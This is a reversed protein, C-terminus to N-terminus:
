RPRAREQRRSSRDHHDRDARRGRLAVSMASGGLVSAARVGPRCRARAAEAVADTVGSFTLRLDRVLGAGLRFAPPDVAPAADLGVLRANGLALSKDEGTPNTVRLRVPLTAAAEDREADTVSYRLGGDIALCDSPTAKLYRELAKVRDADGPEQRAGRLADVAAQRECLAAYPLTGSADSRAPERWEGLTATRRLRWGCRPDDPRCSRASGRSRGAAAGPSFPPHSRLFAQLSVAVRPPLSGTALLYRGVAMTEPVLKEREIRAHEEGPIVPERTGAPTLCLAGDVASLVALYDEAQVGRWASHASRCRRSSPAM